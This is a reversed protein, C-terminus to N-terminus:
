TPAQIYLAHTISTGSLARDSTLRENVQLMIDNLMGCYRVNNFQDQGKQSRQLGRHNISIAIISGEWAKLNTKEILANDKFHIHQMKILIGRQVWFKYSKWKRLPQAVEKIIPPANWDSTVLIQM